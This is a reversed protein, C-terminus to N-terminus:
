PNLPRTDPQMPAHIAPAHIALLLTSSLAVAAKARLGGARALGAAGTCGSVNAINMEGAAMPSSDSGIIYAEPYQAMGQGPLLAIAIALVLLGRREMM